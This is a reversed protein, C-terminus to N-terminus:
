RKIYKWVRSMHLGRGYLLTYANKLDNQLTELRKSYPKYKADLFVERCKYKDIMVLSLDPRQGELNKEATIIISKGEKRKVEISFGRLTSYEKYYDIM